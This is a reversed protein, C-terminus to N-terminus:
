QIRAYLAPDSDQHAGFTFDVSVEVNLAAESAPRRLLVNGYDGIASQVVGGGSLAFKDAKESWGNGIDPGDARSFDDFFAPVVPGSDPSGGDGVKSPDVVPNNQSAGN